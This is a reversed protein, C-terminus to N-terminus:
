FSNVNKLLSKIIWSCLGVQIISMTVLPLAPPVEEPSIYGFVGLFALFFTIFAGFFTLYCLFLKNRHPSAWIWHTNIFFFMSFGSPLKSRMSYFKKISAGGILVLAMFSLFFMVIRLSSGEGAATFGILSIIGFVFTLIIGFQALLLNIEDKITLSQLSAIIGFKDREEDDIAALLGFVRKGLESLSYGQESTVILGSDTLVKVHYGFSGSDDKPELGLNIMLDSYRIVRKESLMTLITRRMEHKIASAIETIRKDKQSLDM